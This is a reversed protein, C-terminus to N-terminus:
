TGVFARPIACVIVTIWLQVNVLMKQFAERYNIRQISASISPPLPPKAPFYAITMLFVLGVLSEHVYM